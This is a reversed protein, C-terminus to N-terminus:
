VPTVDLTKEILKTCHGFIAIKDIISVYHVTFTLIFHNTKSDRRFRDIM